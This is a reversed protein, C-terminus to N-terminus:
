RGLLQGTELNVDFPVTANLTFGTSQREFQLQAARGLKEAM